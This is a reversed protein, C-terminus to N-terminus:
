LLSDWRALSRKARVWKKPARLKERPGEGKEGEQSLGMLWPPIWRPRGERSPPEQPAHITRTKNITISSTSRMTEDRQQQSLDHPSTNQHHHHGQVRPRQWAERTPRANDHIPPPTEPMIAWPGYHQSPMGHHDNRSSTATIALRHHRQGESETPSQKKACRQGM